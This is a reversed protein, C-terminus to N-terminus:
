TRGSQVIALTAATVFGVLWGVIPIFTLLGTSLGVLLGYEIGAWSLGIAYYIGLV